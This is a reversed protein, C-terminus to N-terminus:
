ETPIPCPPYTEQISKNNSIFNLADNYGECVEFGMCAGQVYAEDAMSDFAAELGTGSYNSNHTFPESKNFEAYAPSTKNYKAFYGVEDCLQKSINVKSTRLDVIYGFVAGSYLTLALLLTTFLILKTSRVNTGLM